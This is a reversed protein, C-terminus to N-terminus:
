ALHTLIRITNKKLLAKTSIFSVLFIIVLSFLATVIFTFPSITIHSAFNRFWINIGWCTIPVSLINAIIIMYIYEKLIIKYISVERAGLVKRIVIEKTRKKLSLLVVNFLGILTVLIVIINGLRIVKFFLMEKSYAKAMQEKVPIILIKADPNIKSIVKLISRKCDGNMRVLLYKMPEDRILFCLPGVRNQIGQLNFNECIAEIESVRGDKNKLLFKDEKFNLGIDMAAARNVIYDNAKFSYEDKSLIPIKLTKFFDKGVFFLDVVVNELPNNVRPFSTKSLYKVPIEGSISSVNEIEPLNQIEQNIANLNNQIEKNDLNIYYLDERNFGPDKEKAFKIQSNVLFSFSFLGTFLVLQFVIIAKQMNAKVKVPMFSSHFLKVPNQSVIFFMIYICSVLSTIISIIFILAVNGISLGINVKFLLNFYPIFFYAIIIAIIAGFSSYLLANIFQQMCLDKFSAGAIKRIAVDKLAYQNDFISFIIFNNISVLLIIIGTIGLILVNIYNGEPKSYNSLYGSKFYIDTFKQLSYETVMIRGYDVKSVPFKKELQKYDVGESLLIYSEYFFMYDKWNYMPNYLCFFDAKFTSNEPFDKIVGKVTLLITDANTELILVEGIPNRGKFYLDAKSKTIIVDFPNELLNKCDGILLPFSFIDLVDKDVFLLDQNTLICDDKKINTNGWLVYVGTYKTVEPYEDKITKFFDGRCETVYSNGHGEPHYNTIIRYIHQKNKHQKDYGTEHKLYMYIIFSISLGIALGIINLIAVNKQRLIRRFNSKLYNIVM